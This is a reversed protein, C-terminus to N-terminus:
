WMKWKETLKDLTMLFIPNVICASIALSLVLEGFLFYQNQVQSDVLWTIFLTSILMPMVKLLHIVSKDMKEDFEHIIPHKIM